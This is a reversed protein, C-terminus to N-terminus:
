GQDKLVKLIPLLVNKAEADAAATRIILARLQAYKDSSEKQQGPEEDKQQGQSEEEEAALRNAMQCLDFAVSPSQDVVQSALKRLQVSAKMPSVKVTSNTCSFGQAAAKGPLALLTQGQGPEPVGALRALLLNYSNPDVAQNYRSAYIALDLAARFQTDKAVGEIDKSLVPSQLWEEASELIAAFDSEVLRGPQAQYWKPYTDPGDQYPAVGHYVASRASSYEMPFGEPYTFFCSRGIYSAVKSREALNQFLNEGQSPRGRVVDYRAPKVPKEPEPEELKKPPKSRFPDRTEKEWKRYAQEAKQQRAKWAEYQASKQDYEDAELRDVAARVVPFKNPELTRLRALTRVRFAVGGPHQDSGYLRAKDRFFKSARKIGQAIDNADDRESFAESGERSLPSRSLFRGKAEQYDNAELFAQAVKSAGAEDKLKSLLAKAVGDSIPIHRGSELGSEFVRGAQKVAEKESAGSLMLAALNSALKSPIRPKNTASPLSLEYSLRDKAALSAALVEMQHQRMAEAKDDPKLNSFIRSRGGVMVKEPPKVRDPDTTYFSQANRVLEPLKVKQRRAAEYSSVLTHVDDPHLNKAIIDAAVEPPFTDVIESLAAQHELGSAERRKPEPIDAKEAESLMAYDSKAEVADRIAQLSNLEEPLRGKLEPFVKEPKIFELDQDEDELQQLRTSAESTPDALQDLLDRAGSDKVSSLLKTAQAGEQRLKAKQRKEGEKRKREEEGKKYAELFTTQAEVPLSEFPVRKRQERDLVLIKGSLPDRESTPVTELFRQFEPTNHKGESVWVETEKHAQEQAAEDTGEEEPAEEPPKEPEEKGKEAELKEGKPRPAKPKKPGKKPSKPAKSPKLSVAKQLDGLTTLGEPFSVGRFVKTLLFDPNEQAFGHLEQGPTALSRFKSKLAPDSSALEQLPGVFAQLRAEDGKPGGTEEKIEKYESPRERLTKPSVLVTEGTAVSKAPVREREEALVRRIVQRYSGGIDKYNRSKDPDEAIDPDGDVDPDRDVHMQERRRDHRPPKQKPAPRVLREAEDDEVELTTRTASKWLHM